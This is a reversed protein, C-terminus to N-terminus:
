QLTKPGPSITKESLLKGKQGKMVQEMNYAQLYRSSGGSIFAAEKLEEMTARYTGGSARESFDGIIDDDSGQMTNRVNRYLANIKDIAEQGRGESIARRLFSQKLSKRREDNETTDSM